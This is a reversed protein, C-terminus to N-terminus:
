KWQCAQCPPTSTTSSTIWRSHSSACPSYKLLNQASSGRPPSLATPTPFRHYRMPLLLVMLVLPSPSTVRNSPLPSPTHYNPTPCMRHFSLARCADGHQIFKSQWPHINNNHQCWHVRVRSLILALAPTSTTNQRHLIGARSVKITFTAVRAQYMGTLKFTISRIDCEWRPRDAVATVLVPQEQPAEAVEHAPEPNSVIVMQVGGEGVPGLVVPAKEPEPPKIPEKGAPIKKTSTLGGTLSKRGTTSVPDTTASASLRQIEGPTGPRIVKMSDDWDVATETYRIRQSSLTIRADQLVEPTATLYRALIDKKAGPALHGVSPTFTISPHTAWKFRLPSTCTNVISFSVQTGLSSQSPNDLNLEPFVIGELPTDVAAAAQLGELCIDRSLGMGSLNITTNEYPNQMVTMRIPLSLPGANLPKFIINSTKKEGPQLTLSGDAPAFIVDPVREMEFLCTAPVIGNNELVLPISRTKHVQITGFDVPLSGGVVRDKPSLITVCPLTGAGCVKFTLEKTEVNLADVVLAKFFSTYSSMEKPNFFVSVYRHEHPPIDWSSPQVSFALADKSTAAAPESNNGKKAAAAKDKAGAKSGDAQAPPPTTLDGIEFNVIANIKFPNTIKIREVVGKSHSSCVVAGMHLAKEDQVFMTGFIPDSAAKRNSISQVVVQEEFIGRWDNTVIGPYCSEVTLEYNNAALTMPDVPDVGSVCVRLSEKHVASGSPTYSVEITASQGPELTGGGPSVRFPGVNRPAIPPPVPTAPVVAEPDRLAASTACLMVAEAEADMVMGTVVYVVPFVGENRIQLTKSKVPDNFKLAGFNLGRQPQIRFTSYICRASTQLILEEVVEGSKPESIKCRISKSDKISLAKKSCFTVRVKASEGPGIIGSSPELLFAEKTSAKRMEFKFAYPYKGQNSLSVTESLSDGVKVNGYNLSSRDFPVFHIKYGEAQVRL